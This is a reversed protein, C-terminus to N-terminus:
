LAPMWVLVAMDSKYEDWYGADVLIDESAFDDLTELLYEIGKTMLFDSRKSATSTLLGLRSKKKAADLVDKWSPPYFHLNRATSKSSRSRKRPGPVEEESSEAPDENQATLKNSRSRKRPEPVEEESSETPDQTARQRLTELVEM